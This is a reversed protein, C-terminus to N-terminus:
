VCLLLLRATASRTQQWPGRLMGSRLHQGIACNNIYPRGEVSHERIYPHARPVALCNSALSCFFFWWLPGAPDSTHVVLSHRCQAISALLKGRSDRVTSSRPSSRGRLGHALGTQMYAIMTLGGGVGGQFPREMQGMVSTQLHIRLVSAWPPGASPWRRM